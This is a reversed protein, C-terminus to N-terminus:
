RLCTRSRASTSAPLLVQCTPGRQPPLPEPPAYPGAFAEAPSSGAGAARDRLRSRVSGAGGPRRLLGRPRRLLGASRLGAGPSVPASRASTRVALALTRARHIPATPAAAAGHSAATAPRRAAATARWPGLHRGIDMRLEAIRGHLDTIAADFSSLDASPGPPPPGPASGPAGEPAAQEPGGSPGSESTDGPAEGSGM